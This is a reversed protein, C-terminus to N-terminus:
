KQTITNCRCMRLHTKNSLGAIGVEACAAVHTACVLHLMQMGGCRHRLAVKTSIEGMGCRQLMSSRAM